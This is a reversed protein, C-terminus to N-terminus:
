EEEVEEEELPKGEEEEEPLTETEEPEEPEMDAGAMGLPIMNSPVLLVDGEPGLTELGVMERKENIMLFDANEARKWMSERRPELAPVEDLVPELFLGEEETRSFLWMNLGSKIVDLDRFIVNDWLYLRAEGYNAFTAEGPIGLLMPPIELGMCIKRMVALEGQGWDMERPSFGYPQVSTGRGGGLILNRGANKAGGREQALQREVEKLMEESIVINQDQVMTVVMGPRAENELLKKNWTTAENATDIERATSQIASAGFWDDLPHFHRVHMIDSQGTLPDVDWSKKQGNVTYVYKGVRGTRPDVEVTFRDPRHVYLEVARGVNPGTTPGAREWFSNGAMMLYSAHKLMLFSFTDEPNPRAILDQAWHTQVSERKPGSKRTTGTSSKTVWRFLDWKVSALAGAREKIGRFVVVNTLYGERALVDYKNSSWTAMEYGSQSVFLRGTASVKSEAAEEPMDNSRGALWSLFGM